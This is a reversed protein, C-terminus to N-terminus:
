RVTAGVPRADALREGSVFVPDPHPAEGDAVESGTRHKAVTHIFIGFGVKAAIDALTFALQRGVAWGSSDAFFFPVCYALPYVGWTLSLLLGASRLASGAPGGLAKASRFATRLLLVYLPIFVVTSILGWVLRGTDSSFTDAGLFGTVIMLWALVILLGRMRRAARGVLTSVVVIEVTLLPVTVSWDVYRYANRFQLAHGSPVYMATGPDFRFGVIWSIILLLYALFAVLCVISGAIGSSRFRASIERKTSLLYVFGGLLAFAAMVFSALVIDWQSQTFSLHSEM